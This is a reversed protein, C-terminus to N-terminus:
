QRRLGQLRLADLLLVVHADGGLPKALHEFCRLEAEAAGALHGAPPSAVQLPDESLEMVAVDHKGPDLAM